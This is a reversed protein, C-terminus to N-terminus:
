RESSVRTSSICICVYYIQINKGTQKGLEIDRLIKRHLTESGTREAVHTRVVLAVLVLYTCLGCMHM